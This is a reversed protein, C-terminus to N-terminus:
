PVTFESWAVNTIFRRTDSTSGADAQWCAVGQNQRLLIEGDETDPVWDAFGPATGGSTATIDSVPLFAMFQAVLTVVSTVQTSRLTATAAPFGTDAKAPTIATGAPTGTFTFTQLVIRPSTPTALASGRQSMFQVRRLGCIVTASTNYLWWFGTSTGNQAAALVVHAGTHARYVGSNLRASIPIVYQEQVVGPGAVTIERTHIAKGVSDAPLIIKQDGV